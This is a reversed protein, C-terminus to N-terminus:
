VREGGAGPAVATEAETNATEDGDEAEPNQHVDEDIEEFFADTVNSEGALFLAPPPSPAPPIDPCSYQRMHTRDAHGGCEFNRWHYAMLTTAANMVYAPLMDRYMPPSNTPPHCAWLDQNDHQTNATLVGSGIDIADAGSGKQCQISKVAGQFNEACVGWKDSNQYITFTGSRQSGFWKSWWNRIRNQIWNAGEGFYWVDGKGDCRMIRTESYAWMGVITPRMYVTNYGHMDQYTYTYFWPGWTRWWQGVQAQDVTATGATAPYLNYGGGRSMTGGTTHLLLSVDPFLNDKPSYKCKQHHPDQADNHELCADWDEPEHANQACTTLEHSPCTWSGGAYRNHELASESCGMTAYHFMIFQIIGRFLIWWFACFAFVLMFKHCKTELKNVRHIMPNCCNKGVRGPCDRM